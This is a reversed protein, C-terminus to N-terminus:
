ADAAGAPAEMWAPRTTLFYLGAATPGLLSAMQESLVAHPLAGVQLPAAFPAYRALRHPIGALPSEPLGPESRRDAGAASDVKMRDFRQRWRDTERLLTQASDRVAADLQRDDAMSQLGAQAYALCEVGRHVAEDAGACIQRVPGDAPAWALPAPPMGEREANAAFLQVAAEELRIRAQLLHEAAQRLMPTVGWDAPPGDARGSEARERMRAFLRDFVADGSLERLRPWFGEDNRGAWDLFAGLVTDAMLRERVIYAGALHAPDDHLPQVSAPSADEGRYCDAVEEFFLTANVLAFAQRRAEVDAPSRFVAPVPEFRPLLPRARDWATAALDELAAQECGHLLRGLDAATSETQESGAQGHERAALYAHWVAAAETQLLRFAGVRDDHAVQEQAIQEEAPEASPVRLQIESEVLGELEELLLRQAAFLLSEAQKREAQRWVMDGAPSMSAEELGAHRSTSPGPQLFPLEQMAQGMSVLRGDTYSTVGGDALQTQGGVSRRHQLVAERAATLRGLMAELPGVRAVAGSGGAGGAPQEGCAARLSRREADIRVQFALLTRLETRPSRVLAAIEDFAAAPAPEGAAPIASVGAPAGAAGVGLVSGHSLFRPRYADIRGIGDNAM